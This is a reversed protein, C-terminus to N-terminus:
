AVTGKESQTLRKVQDHDQPAQYHWMNWRFNKLTFRSGNFWWNTHLYEGEKWAGNSVGLLAELAWVPFSFSGSLGTDKRDGGNIEDSPRCRM